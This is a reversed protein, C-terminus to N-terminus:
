FGLEGQVPPKRAPRSPKLAAKPKKRAEQDGRQRARRRAQQVRPAVHSISARAFVRLLQVAEEHLPQLNPSKVKYVGALQRALLESDTSIEIETAGLDIAERLGRILALYEAVNNTAKGIYDGIERLVSGDQSAIVVGIGADGPNGKSAGDTYIALRANPDLYLIRGCSECCVYEKDEFLKRSTFQVISIRCGECKGGIVKAIGTNGTKKRVTEYRAFLSKDTVRRRRPM